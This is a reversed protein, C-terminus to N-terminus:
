FIGGIIAGLEFSESTYYQQPSFNWSGFIGFKIEHAGQFTYFTKLFIKELLQADMLGSCNIEGPLLFLNTKNAEEIVSSHSSISEVPSVSDNYLLNLQLTNSNWQTGSPPVNAVLINQCSSEGQFGYYNKKIFDSHCNFSAQEKSQFIFTYGFDVHIQQYSVICNLVGEVLINNSINLFYGNRDGLAYNNGKYNLNDDFEKVTIYRSLPNNKQDFLRWQNSPFIYTAYCDAHLTVEYTDKTCFPYFLNGGGGLQFRNGNGVVPTFSYANWDKDIVSGTPLICKIYLGYQTNNKTTKNWGSSLLINAVKWATNTERNDSLPIRNFQYSELNGYTYGNVASSINKAPSIPVQMLAVTTNPTLIPGTSNSEKEEIGDIVTWKQLNSAAAIPTYQPVVTNDLIASSTGPINELLNNMVEASNIPSLNDSQTGGFINGSSDAKLYIKGYEEIMKHPLNGQHTSTKVEWISYVIPIDAQCWFGSHHGYSFEINFTQDEIVPKIFASLAADNSLGFYSPNWGIETKNNLEISNKGFIREAINEANRNKKFDYFLNCEFYNKKKQQKHYQLFLLLGQSIPIFLTKILSEAGIKSPICDIDEVTNGTLGLFLFCM